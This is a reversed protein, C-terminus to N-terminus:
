MQHTSVKYQNQQSANAPSNIKMMTRRNQIAGIIRLVPLWVADFLLQQRLGDNLKKLALTDM